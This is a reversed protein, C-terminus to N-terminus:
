VEEHEDTPSVMRELSNQTLRRVAEQIEMSNSIHYIQMLNDGLVHFPGEGVSGALVVDVKEKVLLRAAQIGRKHSLKAGENEKVYSGLIQGEEVDLFAFFPASGFHLSALSDLGKDEIIPIAIRM